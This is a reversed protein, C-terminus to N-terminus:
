EKEEEKPELPASSASANVPDPGLSDQIDSIDPFNPPM